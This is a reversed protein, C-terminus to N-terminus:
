LASSAHLNKKNAPRPKKFEPASKSKIPSLKSDNNLSKYFCLSSTYFQNYQSQFHPNLYTGIKIITDIPLQNLVSNKENEAHGKILLLFTFFDNWREINNFKKDLKKQEADPIYKNNLDLKLGAPILNPKIDNIDNIIRDTILHNNSLDISINRAHVSKLSDLFDKIGKNSLTTYQAIIKINNLPLTKNEIAKGLSLLGKNGMKNSSIELTFEKKFRTRAIAEWLNDIADANFNNNNLTLRSCSCLVNREVIATALSSLENNGIGSFSLDLVFEDLPHEAIIKAMEKILNSNIAAYGIKLEVFPFNVNKLKDDFFEKTYIVNSIARSNM